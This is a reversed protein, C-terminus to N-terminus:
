AREIKKSKNNIKFWATDGDVCKDLEVKVKNDSVLLVYIILCILLVGIVLVVKKM